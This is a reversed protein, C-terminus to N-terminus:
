CHLFCCCGGPRSTTFKIADSQTLPWTCMPHCILAQCIICLEPPSCARLQCEGRTIHFSAHHLDGRSLPRTRALGNLYCCSHTLSESTGMSMKQPYRPPQQSTTAAQVHTATEVAAKKAPFSSTPALAHASAPLALHQNTAHSNGTAHPQSHHQISAPPAPSTAMTVVSASPPPHVIGDTGAAAVAQTHRPASTALAARPPQFPRQAAGQQTPIPKAAPVAVGHFSLCVSQPTAWHKVGVPAYGKDHISCIM